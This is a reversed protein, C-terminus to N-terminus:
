ENFDGGKIFELRLIKETKKGLKIREDIRFGAIWIIIGRKDLIIPIRDRERQPIKKDIFFDKIKKMNKMGLPIFRDGNKRNRVVLPTEVKSFDCLCINKSRQLLQWNKNYPLVSAQIKKGNLLEVFGPVKLSMFFSDTRRNFEGKKFIVREYERMVKIGEPLDLMKGTTGSFILDDIAQYHEYYFDAFNGKLYYYIKQIIRQRIVGPINQISNLPIIVKDKEEKIIVDKYTEEVIENIFADEDRLISAMRSVLGKFQPNIEKEILPIVKHRIKNRTYITEKNTRDYRPELGRYKCYAEIKSRWMSLLPHIIFVNDIYSVPRIGSLGKLATGRFMHLLVTEVLDDQNHALAVKAINLERCLRFMIDFRVMRAAEEPSLGKSSVLSPVDFTKIISKINYKASVGAVFKAEDYAEERFMHNLHFVVLNLGYENRIRSFLDLMTLSDPGGSVGLLISENFKLLSEKKIYDQFEYLLDL